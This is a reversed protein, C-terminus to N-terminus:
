FRFRVGVQLIGPNIGRSGADPTGNARFESDTGAEAVQYTAQATASACFAYEVGARLGLKLGKISGSRAKSDVSWQNVSLGGFVALRAGPKTFYLDGYAQLSSLKGDTDPDTATLFTQYAVGFRLPLELRAPLLTYAADVALGAASNQIDSAHAVGVSFGKEQAFAPTAALGLALLSLSFLRKM